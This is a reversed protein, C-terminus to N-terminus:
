SPKLRERIGDLLPKVLVEGNRFVPVLLDDPHPGEVTHYGDGDHVLALRGRKSHKFSPRYSGDASFAMPSKYVDRPEGKVTVEAAKFAFKYTDRDFRQLLGGGSGFAINEASYGDAQFAHLISSIMTRDVGDGQILRVHPDLVRYGKANVTGGFAEWLAAVLKRTTVVPDGSDPRIVLVGDRSLIEDKLVDGWYDRVARLIDFSDSVCAIIGTPFQQLYHRFADLERNEGWSTITSHETAPISAGPMAAGYYQQLLRVGSLTDTGQFSLLHAAAGLASAELATSGRFGFDHVQFDIFDSESTDAFFQAVDDRIDASNSAITCPYWIMSLLTELYNTLWYCAPDTNEVTMLVQRSPIRSGEPVARIEVPLRGGHTRVIHRWGEANFVDTRGFYDAFFAEAEAIHADTVRVGELYRKLYYHLGFFVVPADDDRRSEFYSYVRETGPEYQKWHSPKYGDSLLILNDAFSTTRM